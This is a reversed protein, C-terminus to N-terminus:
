YGSNLCWELCLLAEDLGFSCMEPNTSDVRCKWLISSLLDWVNYSIIDLINTKFFLFAGLFVNFNYWLMINQGMESYIQLGDLLGLFPSLGGGVRWMGRGPGRWVGRRMPVPNPFEPALRKRNQSGSIQQCSFTQIGLHHQKAFLIPSWCWIQPNRVPISEVLSIQHPYALFYHISISKAGWTTIEISFVTLVM